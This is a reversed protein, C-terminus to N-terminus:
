ALEILWMVCSHLYAGNGCPTSHSELSTIMCVQLALSRDKAIVSFCMTPDALAGAARIVDCQKGSVIQVVDDFAIHGTGWDVLHGRVCVRRSHPRGQVFHLPM